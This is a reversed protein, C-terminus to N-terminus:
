PTSTSVASTTTASTTTASTTTVATATGPLIPQEPLALNVTGPRFSQAVMQMLHRHAIPGGALPHYIIVFGENAGMFYAVLSDRRVWGSVEFRNTSQLLDTINQGTINRAFWANFDENPLKTLARVEIYDGSAATIVIQRSEADVSAVTWGKPYYLRYNFIPNSYELVTGSDILRVPAMGVPNYLNFVEQGDYYGDKETDWAAPDTGFAEEEADTLSDRDFDVTDLPNLPAFELPGGAILTSTPATPTTTPTEVTTTAVPAIEITTTVPDPIVAVITSTPKTNVVPKLRLGPVYYWIIGGVAAVFVVGITGWVLGRRNAHAVHATPATATKVPGAVRSTETNGTTVVRRYVDPDNGGYFIDPITQVRGQSEPEPAVLKKKNGFGLM